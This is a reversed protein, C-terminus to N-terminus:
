IYLFKYKVNESYTLKYEYLYRIYEQSAIKISDSTFDNNKYYFYYLNKIGTVYNKTFWHAETEIETFYIRNLILM